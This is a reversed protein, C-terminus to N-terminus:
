AVQQFTLEFHWPLECDLKLVQHLPHTVGHHKKPSSSLEMVKFGWEDVRGGESGAAAVAAKREREQTAAPLFHHADGLQNEIISQRDMFVFESDDKKRKKKKEKKPRALNQPKM